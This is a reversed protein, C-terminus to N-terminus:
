RSYVQGYRGPPAAAVPAPAAAQPAAALPAPAAPAPAAAQPAAAVPVPVPVAPTPAAAQPAAAVPAPAASADAPGPPPVHGRGGPSPPASPGLPPISSSGGADLAEPPPVHGRGGSPPRPHEVDLSSPADVPTPTGRAAPNTLCLVIDIDGNLLFDFSTTPIFPERAFPFTSEHFCLSL